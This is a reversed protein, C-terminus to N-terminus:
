REFYNEAAAEDKGFALLILDVRENSPGGWRWKSPDSSEFDGLLRQRHETVMGERFERSFSHMNTEHYGLQKLGNSTFGINLCTNNITANAHTVGHAIAALFSKAAAADKVQLLFYKSFGMEKYENLLFAQIESLELAIM